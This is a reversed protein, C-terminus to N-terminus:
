FAVVIYNTKQTFSNFNIQNTECAFAFALDEKLMDKFQTSNTEYFAWKLNQVAIETRVRPGTFSEFTGFAVPSADNDGTACLCCHLGDSCRQLCGGYELQYIGDNVLPDQPSCFCSNGDMIVHTTNCDVKCLNQDTYIGKYTGYFRRYDLTVCRQDGM